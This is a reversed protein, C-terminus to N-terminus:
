RLKPTVPAQYRVEEQAQIVVFGDGQFLMQISGGGRRLFLTKLSLDTRFRPNVSGSWAVTAKPDTSLPAQPTVRLTLPDFHTTLAISGTGSLKMGFQPSAQRGTAKHMRKIDWAVGEEFALLDNGNVYITEGELNILFIKKGGDALYIRGKGKAKTLRAGGSSLIRKFFKGLGEEFMGERTIIIEGVKATMASTKIWVRGDLNIKLFRESIIEFLGGGLDMEGTQQTFDEVRM